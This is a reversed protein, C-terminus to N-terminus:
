SKEVASKTMTLPERQNSPTPAQCGFCKGVYKEVAANIGPFWDDAQLMQKTRVIGQHGDHAIQIMQKQLKEPIVIREGRMILGDVLTLESFFQRYAIIDASNGMRGKEICESLRQLTPDEEVTKKIRRQRDSTRHQKSAYLQCVAQNRRKHKARTKFM